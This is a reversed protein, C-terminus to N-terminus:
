PSSLALLCGWHHQLGPMNGKGVQEVQPLAVEGGQDVQPAAADVRVVLGAFEAMLSVHRLKM